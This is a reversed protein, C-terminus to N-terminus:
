ERNSSINKNRLEERRKDAQQRLAELRRLKREVDSEQYPGDITNIGRLHFYTKFITLWTQNDM